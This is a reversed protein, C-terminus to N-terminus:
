AWRNWVHAWFVASLVSIAAWASIRACRIERNWLYAWFVASLVNAAALALWISPRSATGDLYIDIAAAATLTHAFALLALRRSGGPAPKLARREYYSM